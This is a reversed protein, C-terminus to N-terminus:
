SGFLHNMFLSREQRDTASELKVLITYDVTITDLTEAFM